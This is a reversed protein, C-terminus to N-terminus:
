AGAITTSGLRFERHTVQSGYNVLMTAIVERNRPLIRVTMSAGNPVIALERIPAARVREVVRIWQTDDPHRCLAIRTPLRITSFNSRFGM